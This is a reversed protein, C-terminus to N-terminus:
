KVLYMGVRCYVFFLFELVAYFGAISKKVKRDRLVSIENLGQYLRIDSRTIGSFMKETEELKSYREDYPLELGRGFSIGTLMVFDLPTFDLEGCLFHFTHTSPWWQEVLAHILRNDSNGVNISCFLEFGMDDVLKM